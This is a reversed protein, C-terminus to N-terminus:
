MFLNVHMSHRGAYYCVTTLLSLLYDNILRGFRQTMRETVVVLLEITHPEVYQFSLVPYGKEATEDVNDLDAGETSHSRDFISSVTSSSTGSDPKEMMIMRSQDMRVTGSSDMLPMHKTEDAKIEAGSPDPLIHLPKDTRLLSILPHKFPANDGNSHHNNRNQIYNSTLMMASGNSHVEM